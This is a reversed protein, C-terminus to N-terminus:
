PVVIEEVWNEQQRTFKTRQNPVIGLEVFDVEFPDIVVLAFNSLALELISKDEESEVDSFTPLKQPWKKAEEYGGELKSGPPPRCWSAKMHGSMSDFIQMRKAEWDIGEGELATLAPGRLPDFQAHYPHSPTPIVSANGIIRYQEQNAEVWFVTEITANSLIQTAKPTRIDTTTVLIPLSPTAQASIFERHIHSRVRPTNTASDISALQFVQLRL